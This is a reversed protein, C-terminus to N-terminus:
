YKNGSSSGSGGGSTSVAGSTTDIEGAGTGDKITVKPYGATDVGPIATGNWKTVDVTPSASTLVIRLNMPAMNAAGKCQIAVYTAGSALAADPIGMQYWGPMNTGDVVVFGSTAWTGLTMTALSIATASAAGSRHYYCSLSGTNFVLGTLGAGTTSSSDSIFVDVLQSTSGVQRLEDARVTAPLFCLIALLLKKM